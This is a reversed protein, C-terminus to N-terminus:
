YLLSRVLALIAEHHNYVLLVIAVLLANQAFSVVWNQRIVAVRQKAAWGQRQEIIYRLVSM